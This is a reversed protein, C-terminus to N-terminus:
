LFSLGSFDVVNLQEVHLDDLLRKPVYLLRNRNLYLRRLPLGTFAKGHIQLM